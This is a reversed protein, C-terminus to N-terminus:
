PFYELRAIFSIPVNRLYMSVSYLTFTLGAVEYMYVHICMYICEYMCVYMCVYMRPIKNQQPKDRSNFNIFGIQQLHPEVVFAPMGHHGEHIHSIIADQSGVQRATGVLSLIADSDGVM